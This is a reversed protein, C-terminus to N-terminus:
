RNILNKLPPYDGMLSIWSDILMKKTESPINELKSFYVSNSIIFGSIKQVWQSDPKEPMLKHQLNALIGLCWDGLTFIKSESKKTITYRKHLIYLNNGIPTKNNLNNIVQALLIPSKYIELADKKCEIYDVLNEPIKEKPKHITFYWTFGLALCLFFPIWVSKDLLLSKQLSTANQVKSPNM